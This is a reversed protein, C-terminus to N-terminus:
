VSDEIPIKDGILLGFHLVFVCMEKASMRIKFKKKNFENSIPPPINRRDTPGYDYYEMRFILDEVFRKTKFIFYILIESMVVDFVGEFLDHMIDVVLNKTIHFGKLKHFSCFEKIGTKSIDDLLCYDLYSQETRLTTPDEKAFYKRKDNSLKCFRCLFNARFCDVLGFVSNLGLNDGTILALKFFIQTDGIPQPLNSVIGDNELFELKEILTYFTLANGCVKCDDSFFLEALFM